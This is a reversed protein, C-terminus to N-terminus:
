RQLRKKHHDDQGSRAKAKELALIAKRPSVKEVGGLPLGKLSYPGFSIRVLRNVDLGVHKCTKRIQRNKGETCTIRLWSNTGKAGPEVTVKMAGYRVGGVTLGRRLKDLKWGHVAGHVRARYVREIRNSPHELERALTGDNTMLILGETNM